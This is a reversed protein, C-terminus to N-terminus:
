TSPMYRRQTLREIAEGAAILELEDQPTLVYDDPVSAWVDNELKIRKRNHNRM